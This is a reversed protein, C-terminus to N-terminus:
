DFDVQMLWIVDNLISCCLPRLLNVSDANKLIRRLVIQIERNMYAILLWVNLRM